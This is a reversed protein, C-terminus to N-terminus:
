FRRRRVYRGREFVFPSPRRRATPINNVQQKVTTQKQPEQKFLEGTIISNIFSHRSVISVYTEKANLKPYLFYIPYRWDNAYNIKEIGKFDFIVPVSSGIWASPFCEEPFDVIFHGKKTTLRFSEKAKLFRPYDKKLRTGDVVWLMKKYFSERKKREVPDIYSHQFEIVFEQPTRIDAIHKENTTEDRLIIEQWDTSFNGKWERHWQTENEWWPDCSRVGKHAWHNVKIDGCKAILESGCSPCLGKAGKAAETRINDILAFKM